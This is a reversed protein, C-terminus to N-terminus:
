HVEEGDPLPQDDLRALVQSHIMNAVEVADKTSIIGAGRLSCLYFATLMGIADAGQGINEIGSLAGAMKEARCKSVEFDIDGM